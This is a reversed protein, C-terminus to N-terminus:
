STRKHMYLRRGCGHPSSFGTANSMVTPNLIYSSTGRSGPLVIPGQDTPAAGKRHLYKDDLKFLFNHSVDIFPEAVRGLIRAAILLRNAQAWNVADDHQQMFMDFESTNEQLCKQTTQKFVDKGFQRSGSHVLQLNEDLLRETVLGPAAEAHGSSM